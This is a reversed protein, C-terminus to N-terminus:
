KTRGKKKDDITEEKPPTSLELEDLKRQKDINVLFECKYSSCTIPRIEHVSCCKLFVNYFVCPKRVNDLDLRIAPYNKPNQWNSKNPFIRKGEEYEIFVEEKKIERQFKESLNKVFEDTDAHPGIIWDRQEICCCSGNYNDVGWCKHSCLEAYKESM